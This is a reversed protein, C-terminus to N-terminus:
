DGEDDGLHEEDPTWQDFAMSMARDKAMQLAGPDYISNLEKWTRAIMPGGDERVELYNYDMSWEEDGEREIMFTIEVETDGSEISTTIQM